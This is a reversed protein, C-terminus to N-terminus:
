SRLIRLVIRLFRSKKGSFFINTRRGANSLALGASKGEQLLSTCLMELQGNRDNVWPIIVGTAPDIKPGSEWVWKEFRTKM